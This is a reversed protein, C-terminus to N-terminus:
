SRTALDGTKGKEQVLFDSSELALFPIGRPRGQAPWPRGRAFAPM